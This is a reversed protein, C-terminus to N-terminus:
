YGVGPLLKIGLFVYTKTGSGDLRREGSKVKPRLRKLAVTFQSEPLIPRGSDQCAKAYGSRLRAKAVVAEPEDTTNADLWVGFPDTVKRFDDMAARMSASESFGGSQIQPLARLAHNLLGSLEHPSALQADLVEKPVTMPDSPDFTRDFPVVLWRRFFGHTSDDSRPASNASFVLRAYNQFEYSTGFKHEGTITDGGTLAKFVSTGALVATPLDPCINALKGQLRAVAFRDSEIKHLSLASVNRLGLFTRVLTLYVSKGNAGQGILLLAKQISTNPLMLWAIIEFAIHQSDAPFVDAVFKDITPCTADAHYEATIQVPSLFEPSHPSLKLTNVDLIGNATNLRDLPPREWLDPVTLVIYQVVKKGLTPCWSKLQNWSDLLRRIAQRVFREGIPQYFGDRYIQLVDAADRAFFEEETIANALKQVLGDGTRIAMAPRPSKNADSGPSNELEDPAHVAPSTPDGATDQVRGPSAAVGDQKDKGGNCDRSDQAVDVGIPATIAESEDTSSKLPNSPLERSETSM